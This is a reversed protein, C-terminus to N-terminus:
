FQKNFQGGEKVSKFHWWSLINFKDIFVFIFLQTQKWIKWEAENIQRVM